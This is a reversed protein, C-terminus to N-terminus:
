GGIKAYMYVFIFYHFNVHFTYEKRHFIFNFMLNKKNKEPNKVEREIFLKNLVNDTNQILVAGGHVRKVMGTKELVELDRRVTDISVDLLTALESAKVAKQKKLFSKIM